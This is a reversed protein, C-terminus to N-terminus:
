NEKWVAVISCVSCGILTLIAAIFLLGQSTDDAWLLDYKIVGLVLLLYLSTLIICLINSEVRKYLPANYSGIYVFTM